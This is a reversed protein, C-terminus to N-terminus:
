VQKKRLFFHYILKTGFNDKQGEVQVYTRAHPKGDRKITFADGEFCKCTAIEFKAPAVTVHHLPYQAVNQTVKVGCDVDFLTNEQLYMDELVQLHLLKLGQLYM